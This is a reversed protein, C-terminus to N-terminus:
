PNAPKRTSIARPLISPDVVVGLTSSLVSASTERRLALSGSMGGDDGRSSRLPGMPSRDEHPVPGFVAM